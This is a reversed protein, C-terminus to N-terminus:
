ITTIKEYITIALLAPIIYIITIIFSLLLALIFTLINPERMIYLIFQNTYYILLNNNDSAITQFTSNKRFHNRCILCSYKQGPLLQSFCQEHINYLCGCTKRTHLHLPSDYNYTDDLCIICRM